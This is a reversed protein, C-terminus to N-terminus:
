ARGPLRLRFAPGLESALYEITGGHAEAVLRCFYLGMGRKGTTGGRVYKNFLTKRIEEPVQPGSNTVTLVVSGEEEATEATVVIEGNADCYRAANGVLNHLVREILVGDFRAGLDDPCELRVRVGKKISSSNVELISVLVGAVRHKEISPKVAADEFRAVDVFNAVLGSMRRLARITSALAEGMEGELKIEEDIFQLNGLSVALSNNLDHALLAGAEAGYAMRRDAADKAIRLEDFALRKKTAAALRRKIEALGVPKVVYDDTGAAFAERRHKEDDHGTMVVIHITPGCLEKLRRIVDLGGTPMELDVIAFDPPEVEAIQIALDGDNATMTEYGGSKLGAATQRCLQEDDDVVLVRLFQDAAVVSFSVSLGALSEM